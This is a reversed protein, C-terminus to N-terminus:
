LVTLFNFIVGQVKNYETSGQVEWLSDFVKKASIRFRNFFNLGNEIKCLNLRITFPTGTQDKPITQYYFRSIFAPLLSHNARSDEVDSVNPSLKEAEIRKQIHQKLSEVNAKMRSISSQEICLKVYRVDM